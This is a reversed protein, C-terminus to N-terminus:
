LQTRPDKGPGSPEFHSGHAAPLYWPMALNGHERQSGPVAAGAAPEVTQRPQRAPLYEEDCPEGSHKGHAAPCIDLDCLPLVVHSVHRGPLKAAAPTADAHVRQAEPEKEAPGTAIHGSHGAPVYEDPTPAVAQRPQLMPVVSDEPDLDAVWHRPKRLVEIRHVM